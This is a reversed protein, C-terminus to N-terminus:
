QKGVSLSVDWLQLSATLSVTIIIDLMFFTEEERSGVEPM